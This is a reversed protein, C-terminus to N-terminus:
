LKASYIAFLIPVEQGDVTWQVLCSGVTINSADCYIGFPQGWTATYLNRKVAECLAAKIRELCADDEESWEVVNPQGKAM